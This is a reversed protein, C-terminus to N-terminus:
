RLHTKNDCRPEVVCSLLQNWSCQNNKEGWLIWPSSVTQFKSGRLHIIHELRRFPSNRTTAPIIKHKQTVLVTGHKRCRWDTSDRWGACFTARLGAVTDAPFHRSPWRWHSAPGPSARQASPACCGPQRRPSVCPTPSTPTPRRRSCLLPVPRRSSPEFHAGLALSHFCLDM